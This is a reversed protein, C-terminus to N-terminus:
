LDKEVLKGVAEAMERAEKESLFKCIRPRDSDISEGKKRRREWGKGRLELNSGVVTFLIGDALVLVNDVWDM